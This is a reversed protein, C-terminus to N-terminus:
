ARARLFETLRPPQRSLLRIGTRLGLVMVAFSANAVAFPHNKEPSETLVDLRRVFLKVLVVPMMDNSLSLIVRGSLRSFSLARKLAARGYGWRTMSLM